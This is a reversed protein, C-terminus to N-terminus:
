RGQEAPWRAKMAAIEAPRGRSSLGHPSVLSRSRSAPL